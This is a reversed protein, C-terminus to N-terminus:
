YNLLRQAMETNIESNTLENILSYVMICARSTHYPCKWPGVKDDKLLPVGLRSVRFFWEGHQNDIVHNSIFDWLSLVTGLYESNGSLKYAFMLGVMAEAQAWWHKETDTVSGYQGANYLGGYQDDMAQDLVMKSVELLVQECRMVLETHNIAQAADLMLWVTEIDHGYSYFQITPRWNEDFFAYFHNENSNYIKDLFVDLLMNLRNSLVQDPWVKYLAAYAELLHLHTNTSRPAMLDSEGLRVDELPSWDQTFAETYAESDALFANREILNFLEIARNLTQKDGTADFITAYAYIGFSQAYVHKKLDVADGAADTMWYLGGNIPDTFDNQLIRNAAQMPVLLAPDAILKYSAAFSYAIRAILIASRDAEPHIQNQADIRGNFSDSADSYVRNNWYPLIHENLQNFLADKLKLLEAEFKM